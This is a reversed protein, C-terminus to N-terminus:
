REGPFQWVCVRVESKGSQSIRNTVWQGPDTSPRHYGMGHLERCVNRSRMQLACSKQLETAISEISCQVEVWRLMRQRCVCVGECVCVSVYLSPPNLSIWTAKESHTGARVM